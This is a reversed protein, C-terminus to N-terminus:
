REVGGELERKRGEWWSAAGQFDTLLTPSCQTPDATFSWEALISKQANQPV